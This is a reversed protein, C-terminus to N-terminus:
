CRLVVVGTMIVVVIVVVIIIINVYLQHLKAVCNTTPM